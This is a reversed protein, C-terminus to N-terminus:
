SSFTKLRTKQSVADWQWGHLALVKIEKLIERLIGRQKAPSAMELTAFARALISRVRKSDAKTSALSDRDRQLRALKSEWDERQTRSDKIREDVFSVTTASAGNMLVKALEDENKLLTRLQSEASRIQADLLELENMKDSEIKTVCSELADDREFTNRLQQLVAKEIADADLTYDLGKARYYHHREGSRGVGSSGSMLPGDEFRLISSLLYIRTGVRNKIRSEELTRLKTRVREFLDRPIPCGHTLQVVKPERGKGMQVRMLGIYKENRLLRGLSNYNLDSGNKNKILKRNAEEITQKLSGTELFYEM